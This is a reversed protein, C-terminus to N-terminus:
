KTHELPLTISFISGESPLSEVTIHGDHAEVIAKAIPLGLGLGESHKSFRVFREFINEIETASIGEGFDRIHILVSDKIIEVNVKVASTAPSYKTANDMLISVVQQMRPKDIMVMAHKVKGDIHLEIDRNEYRRQWKSVEARLFPQIDTAIFELHLQNMEARTLLLLDDVLRSLNISQELIVTLTEKYDAESAAQLRLTVQAEGRIITLPTRLEHSVDAIFQRRRSDINTLKLNAQTLDRTRQEVEFELHKRSKTESHEHERLRAALQNISRALGEFEDDLKTSIPTDYHGAIMADTAGRILILPQYLQNFLWYCGYIILPISLAGLGLAFWVIATNLTDIRANIASVVRSQRNVASNIAERFQNDITVELLSRLGEQQSLPTANGNLVLTRFEEVISNIINELEDTDEVSGQTFKIGLAERQELELQRINEISKEILAQKNRVFAQNANNGFILEDTLQKFLRYSISSLKEHEVLLSQAINSQNLNARTLHALVATFTLALILILATTLGFYFLKRKYM